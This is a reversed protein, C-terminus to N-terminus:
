AAEVPLMANPGGLDRVQSKRVTDGGNGPAGREHAARAGAGLPSGAGAGTTAVDDCREPRPV